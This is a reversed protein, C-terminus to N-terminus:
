DEKQGDFEYENDDHDTYHILVRGCEKCAFNEHPIDDNKKFYYFGLGCSPCELILVYDDLVDDVNDAHKTEQCLDKEIREKFKNLLLDHIEDESCESRKKDNDLIDNFRTSDLCNDILNTDIKIYTNLSTSVIDTIFKSIERGKIYGLLYDRNKIVIPVYVPKNNMVPPQYHM